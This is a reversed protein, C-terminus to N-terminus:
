KMWALQLKVIYFHFTSRDVLIYQISVIYRSDTMGSSIPRDNLMNSEEDYVTLNFSVGLPLMISLRSAIETWNREGILRGLDGNKDLHTLTNLGVAYLVEYDNLNNYSIYIPKTLLLAAFVVAVALLAELTHVQGGKNTLLNMIEM